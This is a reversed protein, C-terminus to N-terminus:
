LLSARAWVCKQSIQELSPPIEITLFITNNKIASHHHSHWFTLKIWLWTERMNLNLPSFRESHFSSCLLLGLVLPCFISLMLTRATTGIRMWIFDYRLPDEEKQCAPDALSYNYKWNWAIMVIQVNVTVQIIYITRSVHRIYFNLNTTNDVPQSKHGCLGLSRKLLKQETVRACFCFM